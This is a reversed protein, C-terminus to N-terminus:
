RRRRQDGEIQCGGAALDNTAYFERILGLFREAYDGVPTYRIARGDRAGSIFGAWVLVQLHASVRSQNIRLREVLEVQRASGMLLLQEMLELRTSDGLARLVRAYLEHEPLTTPCKTVLRPRPM